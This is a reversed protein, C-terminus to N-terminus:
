DITRVVDKINVIKNNTFSGNFTLIRLLYKTPPDIECEKITNNFWEMAAKKTLRKDYYWHEEEHVDQEPAYLEIVKYPM